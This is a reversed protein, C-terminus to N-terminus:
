SNRQPNRMCSLGDKEARDLLTAVQAFNARSKAIPKKVTRKLTKRIKEKGRRLGCKLANKANKSGTEILEGCLQRNRIDKAIESNMRLPLLSEILEAENKSWGELASQSACICGATLRDGIYIEMLKNNGIPQRM